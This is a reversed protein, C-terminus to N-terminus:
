VIPFFGSIEVSASATDNLSLNLSHNACPIFIALPNLERIRKQVGKHKGQMNRGNDYGQARMNMIDIQYKDLQQKILDTIGEGTLDTVTIFDIFSEKFVYMRTQIDFHVYRIVVTMQEKRSVDSTCDLIISYYKSQKIQNLITERIRDGIVSILENQSEPALYKNRSNEMHNKMVIDFGSITKALEYFNGSTSDTGAFALNQRALYLTMAILREFVLKLRKKEDLLQKDLSLDITTDSCLRNVNEKWM